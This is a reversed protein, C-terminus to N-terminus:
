AQHLHPGPPSPPVGLGSAPPTRPPPPQERQSSVPPANAPWPPAEEHPAVLTSAAVASRACPTPCAHMCIPGAQRFITGGLNVAGNNAVASRARPTPGAQRCTPVVPHPTYTPGSSPAQMCIPCHPPHTHPTLPPPRCAWASSALPPRPAHGAHDHDSVCSAAAESGAKSAM